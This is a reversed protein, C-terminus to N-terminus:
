ATISTRLTNGITSGCSSSNSSCSLHVHLNEQAGFGVCRPSRMSMFHPSLQLQLTESYIRKRDRTLDGQRAALSARERLRQHREAWTEQGPPPKTPLQDRKQALAWLHRQRGGCFMGVGLFMAM